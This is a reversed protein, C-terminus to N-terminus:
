ARIEALFRAEIEKLQKLFEDAKKKADDTQQSGEHKAYQHNEALMYCADIQVRNEPSLAAGYTSIYKRLRVSTDTFDDVVNDMADDWDMDPYAYKPEIFRHLAIFASAAELEKQYLMERKKLALKHTETEKALEGKLRETEQGLAAKHSEISRDAMFKSFFGALAITLVAGGGLYTLAQLLLGWAEAKTM